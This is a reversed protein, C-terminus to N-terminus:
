RSNENIHYIQSDNPRNWSREWFKPKSSQRLIGIGGREYGLIDNNLYM